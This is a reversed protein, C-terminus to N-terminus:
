LMMLAVAAVVAASVAVQSVGSTTTVRATTRATTSPAATPTASTTAAATTASPATTPTPGATPAATPVPASTPASTPTPPAAPKGCTQIAGDECGGFASFSAPALTKTCAADTYLGTFQGTANCTFQLYYQFSPTGSPGFCTDVTIYVQNQISSKDSCSPYGTTYIGASPYNTPASAAQNVIYVQGAAANSTNCVGVQGADDVSYAPATCTPNSYDYSLLAGGSVSSKTSNTGNIVHCTDLVSYGQAFVPGSCTANNYYITTTGYSAASVATALFLALVAVQYM